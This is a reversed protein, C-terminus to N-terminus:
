VDQKPFEVGDLVAQLDTKCMKDSMNLINQSLKKDYTEVQLAFRCVTCNDKNRSVFNRVRSTIDVQRTFKNNVSLMYFRDLYSDDNLLEYYNDVFDKVHMTLPEAAPNNFICQVLKTNKM